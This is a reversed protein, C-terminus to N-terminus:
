GTPWSNLENILKEREQETLGIFMDKFHKEADEFEQVTQCKNLDVKLTGVTITKGDKM